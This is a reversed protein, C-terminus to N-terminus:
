APPAEALYVAHRRGGHGPRTREWRFGARDLRAEFPRDPEESWVALTGGPTLSRRARALARDGYFPDRAGQTAFHPGEYLDLLIAELSAPPRAALAQAVDGLSLAVRPDELAAGTLHALPGRCWGEVVPNLEVVEIRAGAPLTDLAARLTYGMGLGGLLVRPAGLRAARRCGLEGLALESRRALSTMLVRGAITILFDDGGRHRLELRGEPTDVADLTTM